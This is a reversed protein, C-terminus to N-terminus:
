VAQDPPPCLTGIRMAFKDDSWDDVRMQACRRRELIAAHAEDSRLEIWRSPINDSERGVRHRLPSRHLPEVIMEAFRVVECRDESEQPAAATM